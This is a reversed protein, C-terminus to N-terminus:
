QKNINKSETLTGSAKRLIGVKVREFWYRALKYKLHWDDADTRRVGDRVREKEITVFYLRVYGTFLTLYKKECRNKSSIKGM